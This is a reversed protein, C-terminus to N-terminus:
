GGPAAIPSPVWIARNDNDQENRPNARGAKLPPPNNVHGVVQLDPMGAQQLEALVGTSVLCTGDPELYLHTTKGAHHVTNGNATL